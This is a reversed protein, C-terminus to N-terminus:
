EWHEDGARDDADLALVLQQHPTFTHWIARVDRSIYNRWDHVRGAQEWRPDDPTSETYYWRQEGM